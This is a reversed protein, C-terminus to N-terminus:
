AAGRTICDKGRMLLDMACTRSASLHEPPYITDLQIEISLVLSKELSSKTDLWEGFQDFTAM